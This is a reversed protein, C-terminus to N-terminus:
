TERVLFLAAILRRLVPRLRDVTFTPDLSMRILLGEGLAMMTGVAPPVDIDAAIAGRDRAAEVYDQILARAHCEKDAFLKGLEGNRMCEACVELMLQTAGPERKRALFGIACDVLVDVVPRQPDLRELISMGEAREKESIARVISDKSPFYRYLAGPSMGAEACIEQMSAGHFGSRAFATRAADLIRGRKDESATVPPDDTVVQLAPSFRSGEM